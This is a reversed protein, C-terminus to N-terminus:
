EVGDRDVLDRGIILRQIDTTGAAITSARAYRWHDEARGELTLAPDSDLSDPGIAEAALDAVEQDLLTSAIRSEASETLPVQGAANLSVARYNLLRAVRCRALDRAHRQRLESDAPRDELVEWLQQLIRDSRAYRPIGVREHSLVTSIVEWGNDVEGLVDDATAVVDDFFVENLHHRGLMSDIPRVSLGARDTPILFVTIGDQRREGRSTRAALFCWQALDAYSTWIKQGNLIWEGEAAAKAELKLAALDSGADPESFGQCWTVEGRGILPLHLEKQADTGFAMIAPGVWSLGMYQAGRPEDHAWMEERVATQEWIDAEDGGWERPWSMTLLREKALLRCFRETAAVAEDDHFPGRYDAPMEADILERLRTRLAEARDGIAYDM